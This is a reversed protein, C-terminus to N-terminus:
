NNQGIYDVNTWFFRFVLDIFILVLYMVLENQKVRLINNALFFLFDFQFLYGLNIQNRRTRISLATWYKTGQCLLFYIIFSIFLSM